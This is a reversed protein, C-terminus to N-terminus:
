YDIPKRKHFLRYRWDHRREHLQALEELTNAEAVISVPEGEKTVRWLRYPKTPEGEIEVETM